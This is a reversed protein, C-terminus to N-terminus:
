AADGGLATFIDTRTVIGVVQNTGNVVPLRHVKNRLMLVAADKVTSRKSITIAPSSMLDGVKTDGAMGTKLDKKSLVGVCQMGRDVVPIGSVQQFRHQVESLTTDPFATWVHKSMVDSVKSDPQAKDKFIIPEYHKCLDEYSLMSFNEPWEGSPLMSDQETQDEIRTANKHMSVKCTVVGRTSVIGPQATSVPMAVRKGSLAGRFGVIQPCVVKLQQVTAM